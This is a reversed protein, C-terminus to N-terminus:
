LVRQAKPVQIGERAGEPWGLSSGYGCAGGCYRLVGVQSGPMGARSSVQALGRHLWCLHLMPVGLSCRSRLEPELGFKGGEWTESQPRFTGTDPTKLSSGKHGVNSSCLVPEEAVPM